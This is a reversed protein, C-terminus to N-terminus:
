TATISALQFHESLAAVIAEGTHTSPVVSVSIGHDAAAQATTRGICGVVANGIPLRLTSFRRVASPSFFLIADVGKEVQAMSAQSPTACATSYVILEEVEVGGGRLGEAIGPGAVTGRPFLIKTGSSAGAALLARALGSATQDASLLDPTIGKKGLARATAPGVAAIKCLSLARSDGGAARLLRWFGQVGHVSTFVLWDYALRAGAAGPVGPGTASPTWCASASLGGTAGLASQGGLPSVYQIKILPAIISVAGAADLLRVVNSSGADSKTVLVRKGALGSTTLLQEDAKAAVEGVVTIIPASLGERQVAEAITRLTARVARQRPTTAQEICATPIQPDRGAALLAEVVAPLKAKGMLVVLTDVGGLAAFDVSPSDAAVGATVVAFSRSVGRLTVPIGAAAPGAIASTIGPVVVCPIGAQRCARLEEFGRGFVFPDGGKLRVVRLGRAAREVLLQEIQAQLVSLGGPTKGVDILEASRRASLLLESGILRDHVIVDATELLARGRV